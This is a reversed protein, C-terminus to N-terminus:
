NVTGLIDVVYVLTDESPASGGGGGLGPPIVALVQSGVREGVLTQRLGEGIDEGALNLITTSGTTWTSETVTPDNAWTVATLKAVVADGDAIKEGEGLKLVSMRYDTPADEGPLTIGPAGNPATVVSPMGAVPLQNAGDARSKFAELVDVVFVVSDEGAAAGEGASDEPSAVIAVRSGVDACELGTGLARLGEDGVTFLSGGEESYATEQLVSGDTGSLITAELIVPQGNELPDGDGRIVTSREITTTVLPQPFTVDPKSGLEGPADITGSAEGSTVGSTCSSANGSGIGGSCATLVALAAATIVLAPLTRM